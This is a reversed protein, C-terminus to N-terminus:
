KNPLASKRYALNHIIVLHIPDTAKAFYCEPQPYEQKQSRGTNQNLWNKGLNKRM